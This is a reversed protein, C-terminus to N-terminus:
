SQSKLLVTKKNKKNQKKKGSGVTAFLHALSNLFDHIQLFFVTTAEKKERVKKNKNQLFTQAM